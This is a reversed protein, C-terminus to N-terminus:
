VAIGCSVLSEPPTDAWRGFRLMTVDSPGYQHYYTQAHELVKGWPVNSDQLDQVLTFYNDVREDAEVLGHEILYCVSPDGVVGPINLKQFGELQEVSYGLKTLARGVICYAEGDKAYLCDPAIHDSGAEAVVETLARHADKLTIM